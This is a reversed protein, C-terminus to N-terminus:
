QQVIRALQSEIQATSNNPGYAIINMVFNNAKFSTGPSLGADEQTGTGAPLKGSGQLTVQM